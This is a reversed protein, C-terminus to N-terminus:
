RVRLLRLLPLYTVIAKWVCTLYRRDVLIPVVKYCLIMVILAGEIVIPKRVYKIGVLAQPQSHRCKGASIGLPRPSASVANVDEQQSFSYASLSAWSSQSLSTLLRTCLTPPLPRQHDQYFCKSLQIHM